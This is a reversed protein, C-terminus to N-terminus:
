KENCSGYYDWISIEALVSFPLSWQFHEETSSSLTHCVFPGNHRISGTGPHIEWALHHHVFLCGFTTHTASSSSAVKSFTLGHYNM